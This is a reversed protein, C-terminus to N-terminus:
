RFGLFILESILCRGLCKLISNSIDFFLFVSFSFSWRYSKVRMDKVLFDNATPDDDDSPALKFCVFNVTPNLSADGERKTIGVFLSTDAKVRTIMM